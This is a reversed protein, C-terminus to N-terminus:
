TTAEPHGCHFICRSGTHSVGGHHLKACRVHRAVGLRVFLEASALMGLPPAVLYIWLDGTGAFAASALTRAPNMSMGSLPAEIAIFATVLVAAAAGTWRALLTSSSMTLVMLMLLASIAAEAVFAAGIGAPGPITAVYNVAPHAPLPRLWAVALSVGGIGGAFQAAVYGFADIATIRRLRFFALTVAPNMHAGSRRGPSSYIIAAATLGMALAMPLREIVTRPDASAVPQSALPSAPHQFLVAFAVASLMFLALCCAEILYETWHLELRRM